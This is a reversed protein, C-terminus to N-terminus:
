NGRQKIKEFIGYMKLRRKNISGIYRYQITVSSKAVNWIEYTYVSLYRNLSIKIYFMQEKRQIMGHLSSVLAWFLGVEYLCASEYARYQQNASLNFRRFSMKWYEQLFTIYKWEGM